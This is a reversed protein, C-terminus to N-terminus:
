KESMYALQPDCTACANLNKSDGLLKTCERLELEEYTVSKGPALTVNTVRHPYQKTRDPKVITLGADFTRNGNNTFEVDFVCTTGHHKIFKTRVQIEGDNMGGYTKADSWVDARDALILNNGLKSNLVWEQATKFRGGSSACAFLIVTVFTALFLNRIKM